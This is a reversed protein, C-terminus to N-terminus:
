FDGRMTLLLVCHRQRLTVQLDGNDWLKWNAPEILWRWINERPSAIVMKTRIM